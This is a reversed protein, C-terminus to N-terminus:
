STMCIYLLKMDTSEVVYKDHLKKEDKDEFTFLNILMPWTLRFHTLKGKYNLHDWPRRKWWPTTSQALAAKNNGSPIDMRLQWGTWFHERTSVANKSNTVTAVTFMSVVTKFSEGTNGSSSLSESMIFTGSRISEGCHTRKPVKMIQNADIVMFRPGVNRDPVNWLSM